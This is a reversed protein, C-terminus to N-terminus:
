SKDEKEKEKTENAKIAQAIAVNTKKRIDELVEKKFEYEGTILRSM